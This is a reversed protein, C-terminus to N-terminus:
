TVKKRNRRQLLAAGAPALIGIGAGLPLPPTTTGGPVPPLTTITTQTTPSVTATTTVTPVPLLIKEVVTTEGGIVNVSELITQYGPCEIRLTHSGSASELSKPTTGVFQSDVYVTAGHPSTTITITGVAPVVEGGRTLSIDITGYVAPLANKGVPQSVAYLTYTGEKLSFGQHATNWIYSWTDDAVDVQVFTSPDGSVVPSKMQGPNVGNPDLGPGTVFLYMANTAYATGSLAVKDGIAYSLTGATVVGCVLVAGALVVATLCRILSTSHM